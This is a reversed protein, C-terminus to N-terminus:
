FTVERVYHCSYGNPNNGLYNQHYNEAKYFEGARSLQTSIKTGFINNSNIRDILNRAISEQDETVYFIHSRYQTGTDNGQRNLTTPDHIKFFYKLIEEYSVLNTDFEVKVAEAHGSLGSKVIKYDPKIADGGTYGVETSVVGKYEKLLAEMGWFCGGALIAVDINPKLTSKNDFLYSYKGYGLRAMDKKPIFKLAGSNICYRAGGKDVPGDNFVHGLHNNSSKSKVETRIMGHSKDEHQVVNLNKIPKTFSPWGTGSDYKDTSSFLVEGTDIDVYLGEEKNNWYENNFAPETGNQKTIYHSNSVMTKAFIVGSINGFLLSAIILIKIM